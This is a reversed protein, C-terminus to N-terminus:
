DNDGVRRDHAKHIIDHVQTIDLKEISPVDKMLENQRLVKAKHEKALRTFFEFTEENHGIEFDIINRGPM